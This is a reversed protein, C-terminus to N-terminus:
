AQSRLIKTKSMSFYNEKEEKEKHSNKSPLKAKLNNINKLHPARNSSQLYQSPGPL